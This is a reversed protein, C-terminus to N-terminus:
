KKSRLWCVAAPMMFDLVSMRRVSTIINTVPLFFGDDTMISENCINHTLIHQITSPFVHVKQKLNNVHVHVSLLPKTNAEDM